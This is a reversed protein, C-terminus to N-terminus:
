KLLFFPIVPVQSQSSSLCTLISLNQGSRLIFLPVLTLSAHGTAHLKQWVKIVTAGVAAGVFFVGAGVLDTAGDLAGVGGVLLGDGM